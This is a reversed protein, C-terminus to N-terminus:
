STGDLIDMLKNHFKIDHFYREDDTPVISASVTIICDDTSHSHYGPELVKIEGVYRGVVNSSKKLDTIMRSAINLVHSQGLMRYNLTAKIFKTEPKNISYKNNNITFHYNNDIEKYDDQYM